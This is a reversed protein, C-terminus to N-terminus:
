LQAHPGFGLCSFIVTGGELRQANERLVSLSMRRELKAPHQEKERDIFSFVDTLRRKLPAPIPGHPNSPLFHPIDPGLLTDELRQLKTLEKDLRQLQKTVVDSTDRAIDVKREAVDMTGVYQARYGVLIRELDVDTVIESQLLDFYGRRFDGM